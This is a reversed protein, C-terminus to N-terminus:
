VLNAFRNLRGRRTPAPFANPCAILLTPQENQTNSPPTPADFNIHQHNPQGNHPPDPQKATSTSSDTAAPTDDSRDAPGINSSTAITLLANVSVATPDAPTTTRSTSTSSGNSSPTTGSSPADCLEHRVTGVWREAFANAVPTRPPTRIITAGDSRFVEDFGAVFQGGGDRILFRVTRQSRMTFNRAAQTTWAGTPNKTIGALHVRRTDLEIFFLVYYRRLLVTDVSFFDCAVIGAAQARLFSTWSQSTRGPAPDIGATKLIAWVTSAAITIGLRALEGHIRRYGWTSNEQALRLITARTETLTSPRGRRHPTPPNSVRVPSRATCCRSNIVCCSSRSM